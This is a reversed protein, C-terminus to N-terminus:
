GLGLAEGGLQVLEQPEEERTKRGAGEGGTGSGGRTVSVVGMFIARLGVNRVRVGHSPTLVWGQNDDSRESQVGGGLAPSKM